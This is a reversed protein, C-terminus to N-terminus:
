SSEIAQASLADLLQRVEPTLDIPHQKLGGSAFNADVDMDKGNFAFWIRPQDDRLGQDQSRSLGMISMSQGARLVRDYGADRMARIFVRASEFYDGGDERFFAEIADWSRIFEGELPVGREYYDALKDIEIDPHEARIESPMARDAVWRKLLNSLPKSNEFQSAFLPRDDWVFAAHIFQDAGAEIVCERDDKRFHLIHYGGGRDEIESELELGPELAHECLEDRLNLLNQRLEDGSNEADTTTEM